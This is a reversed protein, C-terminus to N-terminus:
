PPFLNAEVIPFRSLTRYLFLFPFPFPFSPVNKSPIRMSRKCRRSISAASYMLTNIGVIDNYHNSIHSVNAIQRM